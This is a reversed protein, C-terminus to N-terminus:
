IALVIVPTKNTKTMQKAIIEPASEKNKSTNSIVVPHKISYKNRNSVGFRFVMLKNMADAIWM